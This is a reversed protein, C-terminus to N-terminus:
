LSIFSPSKGASVYGRVIRSFHHVLQKNTARNYRQIRTHSSICTFCREYLSTHCRTSDVFYFLILKEGSKAGRVYRWGLVVSRHQKNKLYNVPAWEKRDLPLISTLPV